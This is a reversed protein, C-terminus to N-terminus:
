ADHISSPLFTVSSVTAIACAVGSSTVDSRKTVVVWVTAIDYSVSGSPLFYGHNM